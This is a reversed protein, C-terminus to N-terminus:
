REGRRAAPPRVKRNSHSHFEFVESFFEGFSPVRPVQSKPSRRFKPDSPDSPRACEGRAAVGLLEQTGFPYRPLTRTRDCARMWALRFVVDTCARAYHALKDGKHVQFFFLFSSFLFPLPFSFSSLLLCKLCSFLFSM